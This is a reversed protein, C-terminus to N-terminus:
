LGTEQSNRFYPFGFDWVQRGNKSIKHRALLAFRERKRLGGNQTFAFLLRKRAFLRAYAWTFLAGIAVGAVVDSPFHAGVHMRTGVVWLGIPLVILGLRFNLLLLAVVFSGMTASHGSPFSAYLYSGSLPDNLWVGFDQAIAPRARGILPKLLLVILGSFAVTTFLFYFHLFIHHWHMKQARILGPFSYVSMALMVGGTLYLIWDSKGIVTVWAVFLSKGFVGTRYVDLYWGDFFYYALWVALMVSAAIGACKFASPLVDFKRDIKRAGVFQFYARAEGLWSAFFSWAFLLPRVFVM